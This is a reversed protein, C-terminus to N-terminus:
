ITPSLLRHHRLAPFTARIRRQQALDLDACVVGPGEPLEALVEGWPDVIMSHGWTARKPTNRGGQNAAIVFCLNEVARARLLLEWHKKGTTATFASPALIIGVDAGLMRRYLEPFRLDYCISLGLNAFPANCVVVSEGPLITASEKYSEKDGTDVSVDFLHIKDYRAICRGEPDYVPCRSYIKGAIGSAIPIAGGALWIGHRKAAGALFEQLPGGGPPEGHDLKAHDDDSILPWYEPLLVLRAGQTAAQAILDAAADLNAQLDPGSVMQVAAARLTDVM